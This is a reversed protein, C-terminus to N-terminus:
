KNLKDVKNVRFDFLKGYNLCVKGSVLSEKNFMFKPSDSKFTIQYLGINLKGGEIKDSGCEPCIM